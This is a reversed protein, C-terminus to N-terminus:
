KVVYYASTHSCSYYSCTCILYLLVSCYKIIQKTFSGWWLSWLWCGKSIFLLLGCRLFTIGLQETYAKILKLEVDKRKFMLALFKTEFNTNANKIIPTQQFPWWIFQLNSVELMNSNSLYGSFHLVEPTAHLVQKLALDWMDWLGVGGFHFLLLIHEVARLFRPEPNWM